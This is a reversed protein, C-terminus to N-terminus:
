KEELKAKAASLAAAGPVPKEYPKGAKLFVSRVIVRGTTDSKELDFEYSYHGASLRKCVEDTLHFTLADAYRGLSQDVFGLKENEEGHLYVPIEGSFAECKAYLDGLVHRRSLSLPSFTM